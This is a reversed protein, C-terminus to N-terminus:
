ESATRRNMETRAGEEAAEKSDFIEQWVRKKVVAIRSDPPTDFENIEAVWKKMDKKEYVVMKLPM